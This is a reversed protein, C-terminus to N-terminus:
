RSFGNHRLCKRLSPPSLTQSLPRRRNSPALPFGFGRGFEPIRLSPCTARPVPRAQISRRSPRSRRGSRATACPWIFDKLCHVKQFSNGTESRAPARCRSPISDRPAARPRKKVDVQLGPFGEPRRAGTHVYALPPGPAGSSAARGSSTRGSPGSLFAAGYGSAQPLSAWRLRARALTSLVFRRGTLGIAAPALRNWIPVFRGPAPSPDDPLIRVPGVGAATTSRHLKCAPHRPGTPGSTPTSCTPLPGFFLSKMAEPKPRSAAPDDFPRKRGKPAM